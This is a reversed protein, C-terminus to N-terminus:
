RISGKYKIPKKLYNNNNLILKGVYKRYVSCINLCAKPIVITIPLYNMNYKEEENLEKFQTSEIILQSKIEENFISKLRSWGVKSKGEPNSNIDKKELKIKKEPTGGDVDLTFKSKKILEHVNIESWGSSIETINKDKGVILVFEFLICIYKDEKENYRIIINNNISDKETYFMWKDKYDENWKCDITITNGFLTQLFKNYFSIKLQRGYIIGDGLYHSDLVPIGTAKVFNIKCSVLTNIPKLVLYNIPRVTTKTQFTRDSDAQIDIYLIGTKDTSPYITSSPLIKGRKEQDRIFSPFFINPLGHFINLFSTITTKEQTFVSKIMKLRDLTKVLNIFEDIEILGNFNADSSHIIEELEKEGSQCNMKENLFNLFQKLTLFGIKNTDEEKFLNIIQEKENEISILEQMINDQMILNYDNRSFYNESSFDNNKLIREIEKETISKNVTKLALIFEQRSLKGDKNTDFYDFLKNIDELYSNPIVIKKKKEHVSLKASELFPILESISM